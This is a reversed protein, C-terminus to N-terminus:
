HMAQAQSRYPTSLAAVFAAALKCRRQQEACVAPVRGNADNQCIREIQTGRDMVLTGSFQFTVVSSQPTLAGGAVCRSPAEQTVKRM